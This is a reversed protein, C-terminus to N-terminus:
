LIADPVLIQRLGIVRECREVREPPHGQLRQAPDFPADPLGVLCAKGGPHVVEIRGLKVAPAGPIQAQFELPLARAQESCLQQAEAHARQARAVVVGHLLDVLRKPASVAAELRRCLEEVLPSRPYLPKAPRSKLASPIGAADIPPSERTDTRYIGVGSALSGRTQSCLRSRWSRRLPVRM